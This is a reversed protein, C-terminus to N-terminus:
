RACPALGINSAKRRPGTLPTRDSKQSLLYGHFGIYVEEALLIGYGLADVQLREALPAPLRVLEGLKDERYQGAEDDVRADGALKGVLIDDVGYLRVELLDRRMTSFVYPSAM